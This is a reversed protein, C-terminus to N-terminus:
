NDEKLLQVVYFASLAITLLLVFISLASAMGFQGSGMGMKAIYTGLLDSNLPNQSTQLMTIQAYVRLDWIIQLLGVIMLVPKIMPVVIHWFRQLNSAGDLQSAEIVEDSVQTLGAYVSFAVFPVSMWVIIVTAVGWLGINTGLWNFNTFDFGLKTLLYNIVGRRFDFLWIWVTMSAIIPMAWALLLGVQLVLRAATGIAKMLQALAVGIVVTLVANVLCFAISVGVVQWTRSNTFIDIYNQFGVFPAEAGMMHQARGYKLFSTVVQWGLPYGLAFLLILVAPLILLYPAPNFKKKRPQEVATTTPSM